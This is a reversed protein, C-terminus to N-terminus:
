LFDSFIRGFLSCTFFLLAECFQVFFGVICSAKGEGIGWGILSLQWPRPVIDRGSVWGLPM